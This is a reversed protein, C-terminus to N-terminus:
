RDGLVLVEHFHNMDEFVCFAPPTLELVPAKQRIERVVDDLMAQWRPLAADDLREIAYAFTIHFVYDEHDPQRYGVRDALGNRWAKLARRDVETAGEMVLGSPRAETVAVQFPEPAEFGALRQKLIDTMEDIPTDFPVDAPWYNDVQRHEVVGQFLTMHLSSIPTFVFQHAEPMALYTERADILAAQTASGKQLHCVFTNGPEPLFGGVKRYRTGLHHPPEPNRSKSYALLAESYPASTMTSDTEPDFGAARRRRYSATTFGQCCGMRGGVM